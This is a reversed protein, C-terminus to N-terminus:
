GNNEGRLYADHKRKWYFEWRQSWENLRAKKDSGITVYDPNVMFELVGAIRIENVLFKDILYELAGYVSRRTLKLEDCIHQRSCRFGFIGDNGYGQHHALYLFVRVVAGTSTEKIFEDMKSTYSIVFGSGNKGRARTLSHSVVNGAKDYNTVERYHVTRGDSVDSAELNSVPTPEIKGIRTKFKENM